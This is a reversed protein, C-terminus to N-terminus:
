AHSYMPRGPVPVEARLITGTDSETIYLHRNDPGGFALNTMHHGVCPEIFHTLMGNADFRWIGTGLHCVYIGDEKDMAMGDPGGAGGSMQLFVGVKTATGDAMIPVRWVANQRTVAVFARNEVANLVVGNPSPINGVLCDLRGAASLRFLRGTPDHLGTQGQDTFYCDGNAAFVLDNLGKFGESYRTALHPQVQGTQPDLVMLGNMYDAIFIRGDKHIKLGNPWGDYQVVLDCTGRPSLRFVRGFPIDVFYLNGARDFSPGEIFCDVPLGMRNPDSWATRQKKRFSDPLRFHVETRVRAPPELIYM